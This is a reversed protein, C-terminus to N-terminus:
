HFELLSGLSVFAAPGGVVSQPAPSYSTNFHRINHRTEHPIISFIDHVDYFYAAEFIVLPSGLQDLPQSQAGLAPSRPEM